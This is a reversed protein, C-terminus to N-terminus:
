ARLPAIGPLNMGYRGLVLLADRLEEVESEIYRWAQKPHSRICRPGIGKSRWGQAVNASIGLRAIVTAQSICSADREYYRREKAAQDVGHLVLGFRRMIALAAGIEEAQERQYRFKEQHDLKVHHPGAGRKRLGALIGDSVGWLAVVEDQRMLEALNSADM